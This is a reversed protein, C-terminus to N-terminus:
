DEGGPTLNAYSQADPRSPSYLKRLDALFDEMRKPSNIKLVEILRALSAENGAVM